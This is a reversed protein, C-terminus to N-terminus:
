QNRRQRRLRWEVVAGPQDRMSPPVLIRPRNFLVVSLSGVICALAILYGVGAQGFAGAAILKGALAGVMLAPFGVLALGGARVAGHLSPEGLPWIPRLSALSAAATEGRWFAPFRVLLVASGVLAAVIIITALDM